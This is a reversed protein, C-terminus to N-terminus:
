WNLWYRTIGPQDILAPTFFPSDDLLSLRKLALTSLFYRLGNGSGVSNAYGWGIAKQAAPGMMDIAYLAEMLADDDAPSEIAYYISMAEGINVTVKEGESTTGQKKIVSGGGTSYIKLFANPKGMTLAEEPSVAPLPVDGRFFLYWATCQPSLRSSLVWVTYKSTGDSVMVRSLSGKGFRTTNPQCGWLERYELELEGKRGGVLIKAGPQRGILEQPPADLDVIVATPPTYNKSWWDLAEIVKKHQLYPSEREWFGWEWQWWVREGLQRIDERSWYAVGGLALPRDKSLGWQETYRVFAVGDDSYCIDLKSVDLQGGEPADAFLGIFSFDRSVRVCGKIRGPSYQTIRFKGGEWNAIEVKHTNIIQTGTDVTEVAQRGILMWEVDIGPISVGSEEGIGTATSVTGFEWVNSPPLFPEFWNESSPQSACSGLTACSIGAVVIVLLLVVIWSDRM